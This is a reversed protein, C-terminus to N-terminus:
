LREARPAWLQIRQDQYPFTAEGCFQYNEPFDPLMAGLRPTGGDPSLRLGVVASSLIDKPATDLWPRAQEYEVLWPTLVPVAQIVLAVGPINYFGLFARGPQIACREAADTLVTFFREMKEDVRITGIAGIKVPVTQEALPYDMHYSPSFASTIVQSSIVAVFITCLVAPVVMAKEVAAKSFALLAFLSGWSGLSVLIQPPLANSTGLSICYPLTLLGVALVVSKLTRRWVPITTLVVLVALAVLSDVQASLQPWGGLVYGGSVLRALLVAVGFIALWRYRVVAYTAFFLVPVAFQIATGGIHDLFERAYRIIRMDAREQSGVGYYKLGLRFNEAAEVPMMQTLMVLLTAAAMGTVTLLTGVLRERTSSSCIQILLLTLVTVNIGAPFKSLLIVALSAGALLRFSFRKPNIRDGCGLLAFGVAAYSGATALLNYSPTFFVSAGYTLWHLAAAFTAAMVAWRSGQGVGLALDCVNAARLVGWALISAGLILIVLGTARFAYLSQAGRWLSSTMWHAASVFVEYTKPYMALLLSYSEDTIDFGRDLTWLSFALLALFGLVLLFSIVRFITSFRVPLRSAIRSELDFAAEMM